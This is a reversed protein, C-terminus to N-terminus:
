KAPPRKAAGGRSPPAVPPAARPPTRQASQRAANAVAMAKAPTEENPDPPLPAAARTPAKGAAAPKTATRAAPAAAAPKTAVRAVPAAPAATRAAPATTRATPAPATPRRAAPPATTTVPRKGAAPPPPATRAAPRAPAVDQEGDDDFQEAAPRAAAAPPRTGKAVTRRPTPPAPEEEPPYNDEEVEAAVEEEVYEEELPAAAEEEAYEEELPAAAEEEVYEEELPAEEEAYEELAEQVDDPDTYEEEAPAVGEVESEEVYEYEESLPGPEVAEEDPYEEVPAPATAPARRAAAPAAARATPDVRAGRAPQATTAAVATDHQGPVVAQARAALVGNVEDTMFEPHESWAWRVLDPVQRYAQAVWLAQEEYPAIRLIGPEAAPDNGPFWFEQLQLVKDTDTTDLSPRYTRGNLTIEQNVTFEYGQTQAITGNFSNNPGLEFTTKKPNYVTLFLGNKVVRERPFFAGVPDGWLFASAPHKEALAEDYTPKMVDLLGTLKYAGKVQIIPLRDKDGLGLPKNRTADLYTKDGNAYVAGTYYTLKATKAIPPGAQASGIFLPNWQGNWALGNGFGSGGHARKAAIYFAVYPNNRQETKETGPPFLNFTVKDNGIGVYHATELCVHWHTYCGPQPKSRGRMLHTMPQDYDRCAFPRFILPGEKWRPRVITVNMGPCTTRDDPPAGTNSEAHVESQYNAATRPKINRSIAM